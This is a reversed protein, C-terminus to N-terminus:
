DPIVNASTGGSITGVTLVSADHLSLERTQIEQLALLIHAAIMLPDIGTHPMAGHCGKGQVAIQFYAASPASVGPDSILLTGTPLESKVLVHLMMAASVKPHDLVHDSLMDKAGELLEEAPQFMVKVTGCLDAEYRKLIKAAGLLMCTHMDHGCAHMKGNSSAFPLDTEEQIPLADMDARLLITKGPHKGKIIGIIGARGCRRFSIRSAKLERELASLTRKLNFGDEPHRHLDRRFAILEKQLKEASLRITESEM